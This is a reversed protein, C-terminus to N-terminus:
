NKPDTSTFSIQQVKKKKKKKQLLRNTNTGPGSSGPGPEIKGLDTQKVEECRPIKLETTLSPFLKQQYM